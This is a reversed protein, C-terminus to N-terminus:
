PTPGAQPALANMAPVGLMTLCANDAPIVATNTSAFVQITFIDGPAADPVAAIAILLTRYAAVPVQAASYAGPVVVGNRWIQAQLNEGLAGGDFRVKAILMVPGSQALITLSINNVPEGAIAIPGQQAAPGIDMVAQAM